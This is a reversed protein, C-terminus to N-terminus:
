VTFVKCSPAIQCASLALAVPRLLLQLLQLLLCASHHACLNCGPCQATDVMTHVKLAKILGYLLEEDVGCVHWQM